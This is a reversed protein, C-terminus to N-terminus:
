RPLRTTSPQRVSASVRNAIVPKTANPDDRIEALVRVQTRSFGDLRADLGAKGGTNDGPKDSVANLWNFPIAVVISSEKFEFWERESGYARLDSVFGGIDLM